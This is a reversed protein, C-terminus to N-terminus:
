WDTRIINDGRRRIIYFRLPQLTFIYIKGTTRKYMQFKIERRHFIWWNLTNLFLTSLRINPGLLSSIGLFPSFSCLSFKIIQLGRLINKPLGFSPEFFPCYLFACPIVFVHLIKTAFKFPSFWPFIQIYTRLTWICEWYHSHPCSEAAQSYTGNASQKLYPVSYKPETVHPFYKPWNLSCFSCCSYIREPYSIGNHHIFLCIFV